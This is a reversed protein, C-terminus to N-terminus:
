EQPQDHRRRVSSNSLHARARRRALNMAESGVFSAQPLDRALAAYRSHHIGPGQDRGEREAEGRRCCRRGRLDGELQRAPGADVRRPGLLVMTEGLDKWWLPRHEMVDILLPNGSFSEM